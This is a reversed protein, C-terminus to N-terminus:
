YKYSPMYLMTMTDKHYQRRAEDRLAKAEALPDTSTTTRKTTAKKNRKFLKMMTKNGREKKVTDKNYCLNKLKDITKKIKKVM